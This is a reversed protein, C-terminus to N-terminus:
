LLLYLVLAILGVIVAVAYGAKTKKKPKLPRGEESIVMATPVDLGAAIGIELLENHKEM